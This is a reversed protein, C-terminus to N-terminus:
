YLFTFSKGVGCRHWLYWALACVADTIAVCAEHIASWASAAKAVDASDLSLIPALKNMCTDSMMVVDMGICMGYEIAEM